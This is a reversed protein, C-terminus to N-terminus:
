FLKKLLEERYQPDTAAVLRKGQKGCKLKTDKSLVGHTIKRIAALNQAGIRERYRAQDERFTVDLVYHLTNEIGWHGRVTKELLSASIETSCIYYEVEKSFKGKNTCERIVMGLSTLGAWNDGSLIDEAGISYYKRSEIRGRSKELSEFNDADFGKFDHKLADDFLDKVEKLLTPHNGKVPLIYDAELDIAKQAIDKQTNLADATVIAGKLDLLEMLEPMATIENSKDDVKKHGICIKNEHSYANLTHIAKLGKESSATRRLCKGDFSITNSEMKKNILSMVDLLMAEIKTPDLAEFVRKFTRVNPIGHTLDVFKLLWSNMGKAQVVITEWDNAGCLSCVTTIFLVSVLSHLFNCSAGRPDEIDEFIKILHLNPQPHKGHNKKIHEPAPRKKNM